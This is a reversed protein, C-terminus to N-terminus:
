GIGAIHGIVTRANRTQQEEDVMRMMQSSLKDGSTSNAIINQEIRNGYCLRKSTLVIQKPSVVLTSVGFNPFLIPVLGM